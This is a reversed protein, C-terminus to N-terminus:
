DLKAAVRLIMRADAATIGRLGNVDAADFPMGNLYELKAAARLALRADAATVEGDCTVDYPVLVPFSDVRYGEFLTIIDANNPIKDDPSLINGDKDVVAVNKAKIKSLVKKVDTGHEFVARYAEPTYNEKFEVFEVESKKIVREYPANFKIKVDVDNGNLDKVEATVTMNHQGLDTILMDCFGNYNYGDKRDFNENWAVYFSIGTGTPVCSESYVGLPQSISAAHKIIDTNFDVNVHVYKYKELEPVAMRISFGGSTTDDDVILVDATEILIDYNKDEASAFFTSTFVIVFALIFSVANKM